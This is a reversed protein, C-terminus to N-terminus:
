TTNWRDGRYKQKIHEMTIINRSYDRVYDENNLLLSHTNWIIKTTDNQKYLM